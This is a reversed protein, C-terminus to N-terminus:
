CPAGAPLGPLVPPTRRQGRKPAAPPASTPLMPPPAMNPKGRQAAEERRAVLEARRAAADQTAMENIRQLLAQRPIVWGRGFKTGPLDGDIIRKAVTEEDCDLLKALEGTNLIEADAPHTTTEM